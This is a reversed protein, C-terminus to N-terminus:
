SAAPWNTHGREINGQADRMWRQKVRESNFFYLKGDVMTWSDPDIDIRQGMAAGFACFGDFQALFYNPDTLFATRNFDSAFRYTAGKWEVAHGPKGAVASGDFYYAVPDFGQVAVGKAGANVTAGALAAHSAALLFASAAISAASKVTARTLTRIM